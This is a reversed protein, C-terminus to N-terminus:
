HGFVERRERDMCVVQVDSIRWAVLIPCTEYVSLKM